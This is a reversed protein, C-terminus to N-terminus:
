AGLIIYNLRINLVVVQLGNSNKGVPALNLMKYNQIKINESTQNECINKFLTNLYGIAISLDNYANVAIQVEASNYLRKSFGRSYANNYVFIGVDGPHDERISQKFAAHDSVGDDDYQKNYNGYGEFDPLLGIIYDYILEVGM